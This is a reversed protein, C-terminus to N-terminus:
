PSVFILQVAIFQNSHKYVCQVNRFAALKKQLELFTYFGTKLLYVNPHSSIGYVNKSLRETSCDRRVLNM